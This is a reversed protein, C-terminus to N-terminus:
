PCRAGDCDREENIFRDQAFYNQNLFLFYYWIKFICLHKNNIVLFYKKYANIDINESKISSHFFFPNCVKARLAVTHIHRWACGIALFLAPYCWKQWQHIFYLLGFDIWAFWLTTKNWSILMNNIVQVFNCSTCLM